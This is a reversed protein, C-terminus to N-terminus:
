EQHIDRETDRQHRAEATVASGSCGRYREGKLGHQQKIDHSPPKAKVYKRKPFSGSAAMAATMAPSSGAIWRFLEEIRISARILDILDPCSPLFKSRRGAAMSRFTPAPSRLPTM